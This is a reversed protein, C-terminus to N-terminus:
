LKKWKIWSLLFYIVLIFLIIGLGLIIEDMDTSQDAIWGTAPLIVFMVWFLAFGLFLWIQNSKLYKFFSPKKSM